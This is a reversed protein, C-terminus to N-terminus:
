TNRSVWETYAQGNKQSKILQGNDWHFHNETKGMIASELAALRGVIKDTGNDKPKDILGSFTPMAFAKLLALQDPFVIDKAGLYTLTDKAPTKEITGDARYIYEPVGGDGVIAAGEYSSTKGHKFKPIPTALLQAIQLAGIAAVVAALGIGAGPIALQATVALATNAIIKAIAMARDFVAKKQDIERQRRELAERDAQAKINISTLKAAKDQESLTTANVRDIDAQKQKEVLDIQEQVENKQRDFNGGVISQITDITETGLNILADKTAAALAKKEDDTKKADDLIKKNKEVENAVYAESRAVDEELAKDQIAALADAAAKQDNLIKEAEDAVVKKTATVSTANIAAVKFAFDQEAKRRKALALERIQTKQNETLGNQSLEKKEYEKIQELEEDLQLQAIRSQAARSQSIAILRQELSTDLADAAQNNTSVFSELLQINTEREIKLREANYDAFDKKADEKTKGVKTGGPPPPPPITLDTNKIVGDTFFDQSKKIDAKEADRLKQREKYDEIIQIKQKSRNEDANRDVANRSEANGGTELSTTEVTTSSRGTASKFDKDTQIVDEREEQLVKL